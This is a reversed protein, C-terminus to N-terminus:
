YSLSHPRIHRNEIWSSDRIECGVLLRLLIGHTHLINQHVALHHNVSAPVSASTRPRNQITRASFLRMALFRLTLSSSFPVSEM